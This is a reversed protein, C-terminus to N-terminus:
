IIEQAEVNKEKIARMRSAVSTITLKIQKTIEDIRSESDMMGIRLSAAVDLELLADDVLHEYDDLKDAAQRMVARVAASLNKSHLEELGRLTTAINNVEEPAEFKM